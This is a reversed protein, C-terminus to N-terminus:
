LPWSSVLVFCFDVVQMDDAPLLLAKAQEADWGNQQVLVVLDFSQVFLVKYM